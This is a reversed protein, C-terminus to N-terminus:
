DQNMQQCMWNAYSFRTVQVNLQCWMKNSIWSKQVNSHCLGVPAAIIEVHMHWEIQAHGLTGNSPSWRYLKLKSKITRQSLYTILLKTWHGSWKHATSFLKCTCFRIFERFEPQFITASPFCSDVICLGNRKSPGTASLSSKKLIAFQQFFSMDLFRHDVTSPLFEACRPHISGQLYHSLSGVEVPSRRIEEVADSASLIPSGLRIGFNLAFTPAQTQYRIMYGFIRIKTRGPFKPAMNFVLRRVGNYAIILTTKILKFSAISKPSCSQSEVEKKRKKNM